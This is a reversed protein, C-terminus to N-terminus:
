RKGTFFQKNGGQFSHDPGGIGTVTQAVCHPSALLESKKSYVEVCKGLQTEYTGGFELVKLKGTL